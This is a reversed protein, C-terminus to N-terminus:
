IYLGSIRLFCLSSMEDEQKHADNIFFVTVSNSYAGSTVNVDFGLIDWEDFSNSLM